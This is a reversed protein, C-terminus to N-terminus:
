ILNTTNKVSHTHYAPSNLQMDTHSKQFFYTQTIASTNPLRRAYTLRAVGEQGIGAYPHTTGNSNAPQAQHFVASYLSVHTDWSTRSSFCFNPSVSVTRWFAPTAKMCSLAPEQPFTYFSIIERARPHWGPLLLLESGSESCLLVSATPESPSKKLWVRAPRSVRIYESCKKAAQHSAVEESEHLM